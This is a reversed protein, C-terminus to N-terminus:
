YPSLLKMLINRSFQPKTNVNEYCASESAIATLLVINTSRCNFCSKKESLIKRRDSVSKVKECDLSKYDSQDCYVCEVKFQNVIFSKQIKNERMTIPNRRTWSKLDEALQLFKWEQWRNNIGVLDARIGPLKDLTLRVYGNIEELIGRM